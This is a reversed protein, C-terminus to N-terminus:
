LRMMYFITAGDYVGIEALTWDNELFKGDYVFRDGERDKIQKFAKKFDQVTDFVGVEVEIGKMFQLSIAKVNIQTNGSAILVRRIGKESVKVLYKKQDQYDTTVISDGFHKFVLPTKRSGLAEFVTKITANTSKSKFTKIEGLHSFILDMGEKVPLKGLEEIRIKKLTQQKNVDFVILTKEVSKNYLMVKTEDISCVIITKNPM